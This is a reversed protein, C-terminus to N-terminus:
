IYIIDGVGSRTLLFTCGVVRHADQEIKAIRTQMANIHLQLMNRDFCLGHVESFSLLLLHATIYVNIFSMVLVENNIRPPFPEEEPTKGM